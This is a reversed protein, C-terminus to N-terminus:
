PLRTVGRAQPVMAEGGHCRAVCYWTGPQNPYDATPGQCRICPPGDAVTIAYQKPKPDNSM